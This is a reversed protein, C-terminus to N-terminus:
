VQFYQAKAFIRFVHSGCVCVCVGCVCACVTGLLSGLFCSIVASPLHWEVSLLSVLLGRISLPPPLPPSLCPVIYLSFSSASISPSLSFWDTTLSSNLVM